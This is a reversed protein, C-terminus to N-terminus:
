ESSTSKSRTPQLVKVGIRGYTTKAEAFGYDINARLTQLPISGDHYGESRAIDAGGLRGSVQTKIGKVESVHKPARNRNGGRRSSGSGSSRSLLLGLEIDDQGTEIGGLLNGDDLFDARDGTEAQLFRLVEDFRSRLRDFLSSRLFFGLLDLGLEFSGAGLDFDLLVAKNRCRHLRTSSGDGGNDTIGNRAHLTRM